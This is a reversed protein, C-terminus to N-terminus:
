DSAVASAFSYDMGFMDAPTRPAAAAAPAAPAGNPKVGPRAQAAGPFEAVQPRRAAADAKNRTRIAMVRTGYIGGAVMLLNAWAAWKPDFSTDYYAVVAAAAEGLAKGEEPALALEPVSFAAAAMVHM